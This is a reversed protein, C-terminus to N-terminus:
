KKSAPILEKNEEPVQSLQKLLQESDVTEFNLDINLSVLSIPREFKIEMPGVSTQTQKSECTWTHKAFLSQCAEGIQGSKFNANSSAPAIAGQMLNEYADINAITVKKPDIKMNLVQEESVLSSVQQNESVKVDKAELSQKVREAMTSDFTITRTIGDKYVCVLGHSAAVMQENSSLITESILASELVNGKPQISICILRGISTQVLLKAVHDKQESAQISTLRVISDGDQIGHLADIASNPLETNSVVSIDHTSDLKLVIVSQKGALNNGVVVFFVPNEDTIDDGIQVIGTVSTLNLRAVGVFSPAM